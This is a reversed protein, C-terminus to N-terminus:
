ISQNFVRELCKPLYRKLSLVNLFPFIKTDRELNIKSDPLYLAIYILILGRM